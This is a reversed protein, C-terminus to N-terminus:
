TLPICTSLITEMSHGFKSIYVNFIISIWQFCFRGGEIKGREYPMAMNELYEKSNVFMTKNHIVGPGPYQHLCLLTNQDGSMIANCFSQVIYLRLSQLNFDIAILYCIEQFLSNNCNSTTIAKNLGYYHMKNM